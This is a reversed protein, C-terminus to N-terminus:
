TRWQRIALLPILPLFLPTRIWTRSFGASSRWDRLLFPPVSHSSQTPNPLSHPSIFDIFLLLPLPLCFFHAFLPSLMIRSHIFQHSFPCCCGCCFCGAVVVALGILPGDFRVFPFAMPLLFFFCPFLRGYGFFRLRMLIHRSCMFWRWLIPRLLLFFALAPTLALVIHTIQYFHWICIRCHNIM